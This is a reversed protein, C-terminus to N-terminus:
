IKLNIVSGEDRVANPVINWRWVEIASAGVPTGIAAQNAAPTQNAILAANGVDSIPKVTLRYARAILLLPESATVRRAADGLRM